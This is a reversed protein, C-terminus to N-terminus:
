IEICESIAKGCNMVHILKDWSFRAAQDLCTKEWMSFFGGLFRLILGAFGKISGIIQSFIVAPKPRVFLRMEPLLRPFITVCSGFRGTVFGANIAIIERFLFSWILHFYPKPNALDIDDSIRWSPIMLTWGPVSTTSIAKLYAFDKITLSAPTHSTLLFDFFTDCLDSKLM